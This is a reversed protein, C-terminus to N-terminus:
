QFHFGLSSTIRRQRRCDYGRQWVTRLIYEFITLSRFSHGFFDEQWDIVLGVFAPYVFHGEQEQRTRVTRLLSSCCKGINRRSVMKGVKLVISFLLILIICASQLSIDLVFSTYVSDEYVDHIHGIILRLIHM